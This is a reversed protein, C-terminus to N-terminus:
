KLTYLGRGVRKFQPSKILAINVQIRFNNSSTKYGAQQVAEAAQTVSMTKGDLVEALAEILTMDNRPRVGARSDAGGLRAIQAELDTLKAVLRTHRNQLKRVERQRRAIESQLEITSLRTLQTALKTAGEYILPGNRLEHGGGVEVAAVRRLHRFLVIYRNPGQRVSELGHPM